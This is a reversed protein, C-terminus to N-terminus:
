DSARPLVLPLMLGEAAPPTELPARGDARVRRDAPAGVTVVKEVEAAEPAKAVVAAM